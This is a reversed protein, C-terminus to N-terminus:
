ALQERTRHLFALADLGLACSDDVLDAPVTDDGPKGALIM